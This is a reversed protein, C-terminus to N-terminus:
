TWSARGNVSRGGSKPMMEPAIQAHPEACLGSGVRATVAETMRVTTRPESQADNRLAAFLVSLWIESRSISRMLLGFRGSTVPSADIRPAHIKVQTMYASPRKGVHSTTTWGLLVSAAFNKAGNLSCSHKKM